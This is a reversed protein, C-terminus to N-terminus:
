PIPPTKRKLVSGIVKAIYSYRQNIIISESDDDMEEECDKIHGELHSVTKPDLQLAATADEDREFVKIAYWRLFRDEVKPAITEEIHAIAHEVSGTFVSPLRVRKKARAAEVAREAAEMCGKGQLASIEVVECGLAEGM